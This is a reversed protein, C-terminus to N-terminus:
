AALAGGRPGLPCSLLRAPTQLPPRGRPSGRALAHKGEQAHQEAEDGIITMEGLDQGDIQTPTLTSKVLHPNLTPSFHRPTARPDPPPSPNM